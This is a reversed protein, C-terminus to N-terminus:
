KEKEQRNKDELSCVLVFSGLQLQFLFLLLTSSPGIGHGSGTNQREQAWCM